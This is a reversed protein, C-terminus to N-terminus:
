VKTQLDLAACPWHAPIVTVSYDLGEVPLIRQTNIVWDNIVIM